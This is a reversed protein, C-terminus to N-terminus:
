GPACDHPQPAPGGSGGVVARGGEHGTALLCVCPCLGSRPTPWALLQGRSGSEGGQGGPPTGPVTWSKGPSLGRQGAAVPM